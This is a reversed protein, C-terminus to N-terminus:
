AKSIATNAKRFPILGVIVSALLIIACSVPGPKATMLYVVGFLIATRVQFSLWLMRTNGFLGALDGEGSKIMKRARKMKRETTLGGLLAILFFGVLGAIVWSTGEWVTAAMYAGALFTLAAGIGAILLKAYLLVAERTQDPRTANSIKSICVWEIALGAFILIVGSIHLFLALNYLM